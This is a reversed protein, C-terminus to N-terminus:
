KRHETVFRKVEAADLSVRELQTNGYQPYSVQYRKSASAIDDWTYSFLWPGPLEKLVEFHTADLQGLYGAHVLARAMRSPVDAETLRQFSPIGRQNGTHHTLDIIERQANRTVRAPFTELGLGAVTHVRHRTDGSIRYLPGYIGPIESLQVRGMVQFWQDYSGQRFGDMLGKLIRPFVEPRNNVAGWLPEHDVQTILSLDADMNIAEGMSSEATFVYTFRVIPRAQNLAEWRAKLWTLADGGHVQDIATCASDLHEMTESTPNM